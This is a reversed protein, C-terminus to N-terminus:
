ELLEIPLGAEEFVDFPTTDFIHHLLERLRIPDSNSFDDMFPGWKLTVPSSGPQLFQCIIGWKGAVDHFV